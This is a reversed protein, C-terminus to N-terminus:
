DDSGKWHPECADATGMLCKNKCAECPDGGAMVFHLDKVARDLKAALVKERKQGAAALNLEKEMQGVRSSLESNEERLQALATELERRHQREAEVQITLRANERVLEELYVQDGNLIVVPNSM